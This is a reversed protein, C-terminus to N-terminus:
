DGSLLEELIHDVPGNFHLCLKTDEIHIIETSHSLDDLYATLDPYEPNRYDHWIICATREKRVMQLASATDCRVTETDHGGDIFVLDIKGSWETFDFAKSNGELTTIKHAVLTSSFDLGADSSLHIDTLPADFSDQNLGKATEEDLDLTFIKADPPSNLAFNLTTSGLFTGIEFINRAKIVKMCAILLFTELLSVGGVGRRSPIPVHAIREDPAERLLTFLKYPRIHYM